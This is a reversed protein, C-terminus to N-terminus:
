SFFFLPLIMTRRTTNAAATIFYIPKKGISLDISRERVPSSPRDVPVPTVATHSREPCQLRSASAIDSVNASQHKREANWDAEM